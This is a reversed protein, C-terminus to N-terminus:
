SKEYVKPETHIGNKVGGMGNHVNAVMLLLNDLKQNQIRDNEITTRQNELIRDQCERRCVSCDVRSMTAVEVAHQRASMGKFDERLGNLSEDFDAIIRTFSWKVFAAVIGAAGAGLVIAAGIVQASTIVVFPEVPASM